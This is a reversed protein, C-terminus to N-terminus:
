KRKTAMREAANANDALRGHGDEHDCYLRQPRGRKGAGGIEFFFRGCPKYRCYCLARGLEPNSLFIWIGYFIAARMTTILAKGDISIKVFARAGKLVIETLRARAGDYDTAIEGLINGVAVRQEQPLQTHDDFCYGFLRSREDMSLKEDNVARIFLESRARDSLGEPSTEVWKAWDPESGPSAFALASRLEDDISPKTHKTRTTRTM